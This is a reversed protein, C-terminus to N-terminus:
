EKSTKSKCRNWDCTYTYAQVINQQIRSMEQTWEYIHTFSVKKEDDQEYIWKAVEVRLDDMTDVIEDILAQEWTSSGMLGSVTIINITIIIM